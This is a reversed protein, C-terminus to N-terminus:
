KELSFIGVSHDQRNLYKGRTFDPIDLKKSGEKLSQESLATICMWAAADYIDIPPHTNNFYSDFLAALLLYDMGGHGHGLLEEPNAWLPHNYYKAYDKANNWLKQPYDHYKDHVKDLYVLNGDEMFAGETGRVTFLRSYFRPLTTDLTLDITEGNECTIFSKVIDGQAFSANCLETDEPKNRRVFSNVGKAGSAVTIISTMRNGRNIDLLKAIPGLDHTPYNDCNRALYNRLRYQRNEKGYAVQSRLDHCYGGACHVIEGFLGQRAMNLALLEKEGYCCNELFMFPTGTEEYTDVLRWCDEVCYAGGVEIATYKGARMSDVAIDVHSEWSTFVFVIDVDERNIVERYNTSGFPTYGRADAVAKQANEVRDEYEDCVATINVFDFKLLQGVMNPGRRGYGIAAANVTKNM